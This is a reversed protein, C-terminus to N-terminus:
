LGADSMGQPRSNWFEEVKEWLKRIASCGLRRRVSIGTFGKAAGAPVQRYYAVGSIVDVGVVFVPVAMRGLKKADKSKLRVKLLRSNGSGEYRDKHATAKVQVFFMAHFVKSDRLVVQFDLAEAKEGQHVVRFWPKGGCWKTIAARFLVEGREGVLDNEEASSM